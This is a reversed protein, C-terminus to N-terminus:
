RADGYSGEPFDGDHASPPVAGEYHGVEERFCTLARVFTLKVKETPGNRQKLILLDTPVEPPPAGGQRGGSPHLAIITDAHSEIAGSGKLDQIRPERGANQGTRNFQSLLVVPCDVERALRKMALANADIVEHLEKASSGDPADLIQLYDVAVLHLPREAHCALTAARIDDANCGADVVRIDLGALEASARQLAHLDDQSLRGARVRQSDVKSLACVMRWHLSEGSMEQSILLVACGARAGFTLVQLVWATKGGGQDAAVVVLESRHLGGAFYGVGHEDGDLARFGTPVPRRHGELSEALQVWASDAVEAMTRVRKTQRASRAAAVLALADGVARAGSTALMRRGSAYAEDLRRASACDAVIRAHSECHATTTVEGLLDGVYQAGGVANLLGRGDDGGRAASLERVLTIFDLDEGRGLVAGMCAFLVNHREEAFDGFYDWSGDRRKSRGARIISRVREYVAREGGADLLIACLVAREARPDCFPTPADDHRVIDSPADDLM